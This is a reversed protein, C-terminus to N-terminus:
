YLPIYEYIISNTFEWLHRFNKLRWFMKVCLASLLYAILFFVRFAQLDRITFLVSAIKTKGTKGESM